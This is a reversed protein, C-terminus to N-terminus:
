KMRAIKEVIKKYQNTNSWCSDSVFSGRKKAFFLDKYESIIKKINGLGGMLVVFPFILVYWAKAYINATRHIIFQNDSIYYDHHYSWKTRGKPFLENHEKRSLYIQKYGNELLDKYQYEM